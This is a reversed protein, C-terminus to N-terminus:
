KGIKKITRQEIEKELERFFVEKKTQLAKTLMLEAKQRNYGHEVIHGYKDGIMGRRTGIGSTVINKSRTKVRIIGLAKRVEGTRRPTNRKAERLFVRAAKQLSQAFIAKQQSSRLHMMKKLIPRLGTIQKQSM